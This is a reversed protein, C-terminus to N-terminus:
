KNWTLMSKAKKFNQLGSHDYKKRALHKWEYNKNNLEINQTIAVWLQLYFM